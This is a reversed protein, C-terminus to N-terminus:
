KGGCPFVINLLKFLSSYCFVVLSFHFSDFYLAQKGKLHESLNDIEGANETVLYLFFISFSSLMWCHGMSTQVAQGM